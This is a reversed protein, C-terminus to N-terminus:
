IGFTFICLSKRRFRFISEEEGWELCYNKNVLLIHEISKLSCIQLDSDASTLINCIKPIVGKEILYDIM